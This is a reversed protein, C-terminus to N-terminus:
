DTVNPRANGRKDIHGVPDARRQARGNHYNLLIRAYRAATRYGRELDLLHVPDSASGTNAVNVLRDAQFLFEAESM